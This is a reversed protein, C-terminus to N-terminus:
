LGAISFTLTDKYPGAVLAKSSATIGVNYVINTPAADNGPASFDLVKDGTGTLDILTPATVNTGLAGTDTALRFKYALFTAVVAANYVGADTNRLQYTNASQVTLKFGKADNSGISIKGVNVYAGFITSLDALPTGDPFLEQTVSVANYAPFTGTIVLAGTGVAASVSSALVAQAAIAAVVGLSKKSFKLM